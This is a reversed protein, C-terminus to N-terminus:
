CKVLNGRLLQNNSRDIKVQWLLQESQKFEGRDSFQTSPYLLLPVNYKEIKLMAVLGILRPKQPKEEIHMSCRANGM